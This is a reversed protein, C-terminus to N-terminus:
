DGLTSMMRGGPDDKFSFIFAVCFRKDIIIDVLKQTGNQRM